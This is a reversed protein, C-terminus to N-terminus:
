ANGGSGQIKSRGKLCAALRKRLGMLPPFKITLWMRLLIFRGGWSQSLGKRLRMYEWKREFRACAQELQRPHTFANDIVGAFRGIDAWGELPYGKERAQDWLATGPLPMMPFVDAAVAPLDVFRMLYAETRAISQRTERPAGFICFLRVQQIGLECAKRINADLHEFDTQKGMAASVEPDASELGIEISICGAFVMREIREPSLCETRTQIGWYFELPRIVECFRELWAEGMGFIEDIMALFRHGAAQCRELEIRIREPDKTRFKGRFGNRMCFTCSYPCGRSAEYSPLGYEGPAISDFELLPLDNLDAVFANRQDIALTGDERRSCVGPLSDAAADGKALADILEAVVRDPEGKVLYDLELAAMTEPLATGQPGIVIIKAQPAKRRLDALVARPFDVDCIGDRWFIYTPATTVVLYDARSLADDFAEPTLTRAWMDAMLSPLGRQKLAGEIYMLELPFYPVQTRFRGPRSLERWDPNVLVTLPQLNSDM